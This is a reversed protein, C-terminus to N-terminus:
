DRLYTGTVVMTAGTAVDDRTLNVATNGSRIVRLAVSTTNDQISAVLWRATDITVNDFEGIALAQDLSAVSSATFPLGRIWAASTGTGATSVTVRISVHVLDGMRWYRGIADSLTMGDWTPTFSGEEFDSSDALAELIGKWTFADNTGSDKSLVEGTSGGNFLGLFTILRNKFVSSALQKSISPM